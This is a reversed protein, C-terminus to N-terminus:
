TVEIVKMQLVNFINKWIFSLNLNILNTHLYNQCIMLSGLGNKYISTM